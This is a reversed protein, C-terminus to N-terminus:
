LVELHRRLTFIAVQHAKFCVWEYAPERVEYDNDASRLDEQAQRLFRKAQAPQPNSSSFSPPVDFNYGARASYERSFNEKYRERQERHEKARQNTQEFYFQYANYFNAKFTESAAFPNRPDLDFDFNEFTKPRPLGQSCLATSTTPLM